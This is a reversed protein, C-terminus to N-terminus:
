AGFSFGKLSLNQWWKRFSSHLLFLIQEMHLPHSRCREQVFGCCKQYGMDSCSTATPCLCLNKHTDQPWLMWIQLSFIGEGHMQMVSTNKHHLGYWALGRGKPLPELESQLPLFFTKHYLSFERERSSRVCCKCIFPAGNWGLWLMFSKGM